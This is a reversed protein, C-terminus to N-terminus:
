LTDILPKYPPRGNDITITYGPVMYNEGRSVMGEEISIVKWGKRRFEDAIKEAFERGNERVTTYEEIM